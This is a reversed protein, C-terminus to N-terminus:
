IKFRNIESKLQLNSLIKLPNEKIRMRIPLSFPSRIPKGNFYAPKYIYPITKIIREIENALFPNPAKVKINIIKGLTDVHFISFIKNDRTLKIKHRLHTSFKRFVINSVNKSFYKRLESPTKAKECKKNFVPYIM